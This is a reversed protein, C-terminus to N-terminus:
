LNQSVTSLVQKKPTKKFAEDLLYECILAINEEKFGFLACFHEIMEREVPDIRGDAWAVLTLEYLCDIKELITKPPPFNFQDPHLLLSDIDSKSIGRAEGIRYLIELEKIDVQSDSLAMQYLNLFHAKLAPTLSM